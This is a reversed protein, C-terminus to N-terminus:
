PAGCQLLGAAPTCAAPVRIGDTGQTASPAPGVEAIVGGRLRVAVNETRVAEEFRDKRAGESVSLTASISNQVQPTTPLVGNYFVPIETQVGAGAFFFRYAGVQPGNLLVATSGQAGNRPLVTIYGANLPLTRGGYAQSGVDVRLGQSASGFPFSQAFAEPTLELTLAPMSVATGVSADFPMRAVITATSGVTAVRDARINVVDAVIGDGGVNVTTGEVRVRSQVAYNQAGGGGISVNTSNATWAVNPAGTVVSLEGLFSNGTRLLQVSAGNSTTISLGAGAAVSIRGANGQSVGDAAFAIPLGTIQFGSRGSEDAAVAGQAATSVLELRGGNVTADAAFTTAGADIRGGAGAVLTGLTLERTNGNEVGSTVDIRGGANLALAGGFRNGASSALVRQGATLALSGVSTVAGRMLLSDTATLSAGATQLAISGDADIGRVTESGALLLRGGTAINVTSTASLDGSAATALDGSSVRTAGSYHKNAGSFTLRGSGAQEIGGTGSVEQALQVNDSRAFVLTGDVEFRSSSLAGATGGDGIRLTGGAVRTVGAYTNAGTLTFSSASGQKTLGGSGGIVGAFISDGGSGTSLTFGALAVQGGGALTGFTQDGGLALQAGGDVQVTPLGSLRNAGALTLTGTQVAVSQAAAQGAITSNGRSTLAGAGLNAQVLGSDLTYTGAGLTGSGALTGALTLSAVTDTGDLALTAGSAVAVAVTDALRNSSGLTLTGDAVNVTAASLGNIRSSGHSTLTGAGLDADVRGANLTYSAATLTGSGGLAGALTLSAVRDNGALSLTAGSAVNVAAADALRDAAALALTGADVRLTAAASTGDLTFTGAGTKVLTGAGTIAGGFHSDGGSGTSLQHNAIDVTGTGALTGLAQDGGLLLQGGSNVTLAPLASLRDTGALTLTGNEVTVSSAAASGNITSAGRSTLTGAGLQADLTGGDLLYTAATLTRNGGILRGSLALSGVHEDGRLDLTAGSDVLVAGSDALREAAALILTGAAVRTTGLYAQSGTLTFSSTGQKVLDGSGSIVGDFSSSGGAGTALTQAGLAVNGGGALSGLTQDGNLLQLAAGGAVTVAPLASFQQSGGLVLTGGDVGVSNVAASGNLRSSGSSHLQGSGLNADVTGGDLTYSTATLTGTGGLRGLLSLTGIRDNNDLNMVGGAAVSVAASDALRDAGQVNLTGIADVQMTTSALTGSVNLVGDMVRTLGTYSGTGGLSFTSTGVKLLAGAGSSSLLTGTFSSDGRSGTTLTAGRLDLTGAGALSGLTEDGNLNLTGPGFINVTPANTFRGASGLTLVGSEITVLSAGVSGILRSRGRSIIAGSGIDLEYNGETLLYTGANLIGTGNVTGSVALAGITDNGNLTLTAGSAVTVAANDDLLNGTTLKLTGTNVNVTAAASTASLTAGLTDGAEVDLQGVGLRTTVVAGERLVVNPATLTAAGGSLTGASEVRTVTENGGLALEAGADVIVAAGAALRGASALTLKGADVNVTTAAATGALTANGAVDLRPGALNAQVNAGTNLTARDTTTLTQGAGALTGSLNLTQVTQAATLLLSGANVNVTAGAALRDAAALTLTGADVAVTGAAATGALTANGNVTLTGAGLNSGSATSAGAELTYNTATLTGAGTLAGTLSLAHVTEDGGLRLESTGNVAVDTAAGLRGGSALTLRGANVNLATVNATGSLTANGTVDVRTGGLNAAVDAGAGLTARDTTSLTQGSGALTGSVNLTQVTQAGALRLTAGGNVNVTAGAALRQAGDLLLEGGAVSVSGAAATGGLTSSGSSSLTGSGLNAGALTSGGVLAYSGATLTGSGGLAGHLELSGVTETGGLALTGGLVRLTANNALRESGGLTLTGGTVDVATAAATGSLLVTGSSTLTGTGLNGAVTGGALTYSTATLTGTSGNVAGAQLSLTGVTDVHTGLDLTGGNVVVAGGNAFVNDGGLALTGASVSTTGTYAQSGSITVTGATSKTLGVNGGLRATVTGSRLDHDSTSTLVGSTGTISGSRLSVGTVGINRTGLDFSGGDVILSSGAALAADLGAVLAGSGVHTSGDYANAASLTVQGAGSGSVVVSATGAGDSIIRQVTLGTGSSSLNLTSGNTLTLPTAHAALTGAGSSNSISGGDAITVLNTVTAGGTIDLTGSGIAITGTGASAGAGVIRLTGALISTGGTYLGSSVLEAVGSGALELRGSGTISGPVTLTGARNFRLAGPNDVTISGLGLTGTNGGTGVQLVGASVVTNGYGNDAALVTTGTGVQEVTGTGTIAAGLSVNSSTDRNIRLVGDNAVAGSGISGTAGGAGAVLTAGSAITTTGQWNNDATLLVTGGSATVRGNAASDTLTRAVTLTSGGAGALTLGVNNGLTLTGAALTGGGSSSRVTAGDAVTLTNAVSAGGTIDLTGSGLAVTGSGATATAGTIRLTGASVTTGGDYSNAATLAVTGGTIAVSEAAGGAVTPITRAVTLTSAGGGALNLTAGDALTLTGAALTGNGSSSTISAGSSADIANAVSAGGAIDLTHSGLTLTGTGARAGAGSLRLTGGTVDVAGSFGASSDATLATTGSGHQDFSGTGSLVNALTLADSRDVRLTAGSAIDVTGGALSGATGGAGLQLTAGSAISTSGTYANAGTFVITGGGIAVTEAAGGAVNPIARAVTLTSSAGANLNLAAGDALTLTGAALTGDGVSSSITAGTSATVTNTVSAGGTIDLTNAGLAITGTGAKANAGSLRLTGASVNVAGSFGASSDATLATTGSGQQVLTGSGSLVNALTLTDSHSIRLTGGGAIAIAGGALSGATAGNGLVLTAGNAIGTSGTYTNAGTLVVTGTGVSVSEAAGGATVPIARAVTLTSAAGGSLNLTAGDALTLTGAALTGNGTSSSITAGNADSVATALSSANVIDLTNAGLVISGDGASGGDIRLTGATVTTDGGHTNAGQLAVTGGNITLTGDNSTDTVARAITLTGGGASSLTVGVGTGLNLAGAAGLTGGGSGSTITAGNAVTVTNGVSAGGTIDLTHTGLVIDGTGATATAGSVRLTGATVTTDGAYTNAGSLVVTGGNANVAETAGGAVDAIVRAVTLTSGAAGALNLTAGDALTLTGAALAGGGTSSRITAGNGATVATSVSSANVIDLTNGGLVISGANGATGGDIQLTGATVTTNGGYTGAARLAVTGGGIALTGDNATDSIVRAVGLTGGGASSLTIGVGAGLNLTGAALTGGGSSSTITAGNAVTITNGVSAGAAIDLTNAGLAITGTGAKANTGSLGLAGGTVNVTGSYGASSDATLVTTGSGHQDFAGTGSFVNALSLTDTRDVRLTGGSLTVAGGGLTGATGANGIQLVGASVTTAGYSNTGTLITTGGGAQVLAGAGSIDGSLTVSDSRNISLTGGSGISVANGTALSGATGGAGLSLAAAASITTDGIYTNTGTLVVTGATVNIAEASGGAVDTIARAVTLTTGGGGALNLTAGDALNLTGAALTGGGTNSRITAGNSADITTTVSSGGRIELTNAGLVIKGANGAAGGDIQLVGATVTTDGGYTNGARLAVNGSDITVTADNNGGDALVRAIGLPGGAASGFHVSGGDGLDIATGAGLTGGGTSSIIRGGAVSIDNTVTAGDAIDLTHSGIAIAGTGAKANTGSLRLTGGTINVAGSFSSSNATLVTAGSGHQDLTGAGSFTNGLTLEDTRDVRLTGAALNVTGTGLTGATGNNGVQLVGANVTTNGYSNTGTLITTGAGDQVLGGTAGSIAGSLTIGDSRDIRLTGGNGISVTNGAAISGSTGGAGLTLTAGAGIDTNGAYTNTATLQVTGGTVNVGEAPAGGVASIARAVVLTGSGGSLNLTAGDALTLAGGGSALTGTGDSSAITAGNAASVATALNGGGVIDLTGAAGLAIAGGNGADGGDLRLTGGSVTTNGGYTNASKLVVTGSAVALKGTDDADTIVRTVDLRGTGTAGLNLTVNTGLDLTGAGLTSPSTGVARITAGDNVTITNTVNANDLELVRANLDIAGTGARDAGGSLRLTGGTVNVAGSFTASATQLELMSSGAQILTGSGSIENTLTLDQTRNFRLTGAAGLTITGSGLTGTSGANGVQLTGDSVTTAGYSNTGTLITTGTGAQVLEGAGSIANSLTLTGSRNLTLSGGTGVTVAGNGIAGTTGGDGLALAAGADITTTGAYTNAGTLVVSGGTVRVNEAGAGAVLPIVREVTLTGAAGNLNLTAANALDLTGAALTGGGAGGRITAGTIADIETDVSAGGSIALTNAGLVIKGNDGARGSGDIQLTGANVTTDGGYSNAAKLVVTGGEISVTADDNSGDSLVKVVTLTGTGGGLKLAGGNGLNLTHDFAGTGSSSKITAGASLTVLNDVTAGGIIDLVHDDLAITGTGATATAGNIQLTGNSVTTGGAYTNAGKLSVVGAGSVAVKSGGNSGSIVGDVALVSGSGASLRLTDNNGISLAAGTLTGSGASSSLTGNDALVIANGVSAANTVDLTQSGVDINGAGATGSGDINLTGNNVETGGGYANVNSLTLTGTGTKLVSGASISTAAAQTGAGSFNLTIRGANGGTALNGLQVDVADRILIASNTINTTTLSGALTVNGSTGGGNADITITSNGANVTKGSLLTFGGAGSSFSIAGNNTSVDANVNIASGAQMTLTAGAATLALDSNVNITVTADLIVNGGVGVLTTPAVNQTTGPQASSDNVNAYPAAGGTIVNITAPDLLWTGGRGASAAVSVSGKQVGLNLKGSTEVFGGNGGEAGGRVTIRGDFLTTDDSWVIVRGGDGRVTADANIVAGEAVTTTTANHLEANSGQYDGGVRITGGGAPGSADLRATGALQVQQGLVTVQGGSADRADGAASADLTGAVRTVGHSGGDVVIRGEQRGLSRAQVIGEMNLVTDAFGARAAARIEASGGDARVSGLLALKADLRDNRVNFFILGDGEVDVLVESAAALGVRRASIQGSHMLQPSVLIVSDTANITGESRLEGASGAGAGLQIRGSALDQSSISLTTAVLSGVDVRSNAGFIIGRPNVLWVSGNSTLSGYILSPNDGIVRNLLVSTRDPQMVNVREGAAISFNTWDLQARPTSQQIDMQGPTTQRVTAQGSVLVAGQPTAFGAPAALLLCAAVGM